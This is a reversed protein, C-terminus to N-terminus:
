GSPESAWCLPKRWVPCCSSSPSINGDRGSRRKATVARLTAYIAAETVADVASTADDLV